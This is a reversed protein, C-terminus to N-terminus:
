LTPGSHLHAGARLHCPPTPHHIRQWRTAPRPDLTLDRRFRLWPHFTLHSLQLTPSALQEHPDLSTPDADYAMRLTKTEATALFGSMALALATLLLRRLM